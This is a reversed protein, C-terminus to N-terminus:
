PEGKLLVNLAEAFRDWEARLRPEESCDKVLLVTNGSNIQRAVPLATERLKALLARAEDRERRVEALLAAARLQEPTATNFADAFDRPEM